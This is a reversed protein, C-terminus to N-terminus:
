RFTIERASGMRNWFRIVVERPMISVKITPLRPSAGKAATAWALMGTNMMWSTMKPSWLPEETSM